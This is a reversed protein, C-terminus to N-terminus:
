REQLPVLHVLIKYDKEYSGGDFQKSLFEIPTELELAEHPYVLKNKDSFYKRLFYLILDRAEVNYQPYMTIKGFFYNMEPNDTVLAGLGDWLNDLSFLGKRSEASPQYDPQVFSRGLEITSPFYHQKLKLHM